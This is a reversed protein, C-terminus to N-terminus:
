IAAVSMPMNDLLRVGNVWGAVLGRKRATSPVAPAFTDEDIIVAYDLVFGPKTALTSRLVEVMNECDSQAAAAILARSIVLASARDQPSLRVNRSSLALGDLDRVTPVGIISIPLNHAAVMQRVLFLQQFDKEGFLAWTPELLSFLRNVITLVGSFHGKRSAGEYLEGVPGPTIREIEEDQPFIEALRPFWMQTAGAAAAVEIDKEPTRPYKALDAEDNFQLPNVFDSVVVSDSLELARSILAAHGQHLAGMTPVFSLPRALSIGPQALDSIVLM